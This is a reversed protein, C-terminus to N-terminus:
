RAAVVIQELEDRAVDAVVLTHDFPQQLAVDPDLLVEAVHDDLRWDDLRM